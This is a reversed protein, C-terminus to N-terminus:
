FYFVQLELLEKMLKSLVSYTQSVIEEEESNLHKKFEKLEECQYLKNTNILGPQLKIRCEILKEWIASICLFQYQIQDTEDSILM